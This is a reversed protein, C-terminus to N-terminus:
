VMSRSYRHRQSHYGRKLSYIKWGIGAETETTVDVRKRETKTTYQDRGEACRANRKEIEDQRERHRQVVVRRQPVAEGVLAVADLQPSRQRVPFFVELFSRCHRGRFRMSRENDFGARAIKALIGVAKCFKIWITQQVVESLSIPRHRHM